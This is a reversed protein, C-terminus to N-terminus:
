VATAPNVLNWATPRYQAAALPDGLADLIRLAEVQAEFDSQVSIGFEVRILKKKDDYARQGVRLPPPNFGALARVVSDLRTSKDRPDEANEPVASISVLHTTKYSAYM